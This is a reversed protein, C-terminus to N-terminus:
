VETESNRLSRRRPSATKWNELIKSLTPELATTFISWLAPRHPKTEARLCFTEEGKVLKYIIKKKDGSTDYDARSGPQPYLM